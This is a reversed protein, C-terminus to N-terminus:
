KESIYVKFTLRHTNQYANSQDIKSGIGASVVNLISASIRGGVEGGSVENVVISVDFDAFNGDKGYMDKMGIIKFRKKKENAEDVGDAINLLAEKIFQKLEMSMLNLKFFIETLSGKKHRLRLLFALSLLVPLEKNGDAFPLAQTM